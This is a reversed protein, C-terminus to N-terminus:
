ENVLGSLVQVKELNKQASIIDTVQVVYMKNDENANSVSMVRNVESGNTTPLQGGSAFKRTMKSKVTPIGGNFFQYLDDQTVTRKTDNIYTLLPLNAATSKRNTIFEGGEVEAQGGLVKVGGQSHRAGQIVGGDEYIPTSKIAAVNRMGLALAVASLALGVFWPQVALANSVAMYTNIVAQQVKSKKEQEQRKKELEKQKKELKEKEQEAKQQAAVDELYAAQQAALTDILFQRRSGRADALEDEISDMKDKHAEAAEEAKDYAEQQIELQHEIEALQNDILQISTENMTTLLSSIQGVWSDVLGKWQGMIETLLTDLMKTIDKGQSELEDKTDQLQQKAVKYDAYTIQGSKLKRDLNKIEDDIANTGEEVAKLADDMQKKTKGYDMIGFVNLDQGVNSMIDNVQNVYEQYLNANDSLSQSIMSKRDVLYQNNITTLDNQYKQEIQLLHQNHLENEKEVLDNYEEETASGDEKFQKLEALRDNYRNKEDILSTDKDLSVTEEDLKKKEELYDLEIKLREASYKKEAQILAGYKANFDFSGSSTNINQNYNIDVDAGKAELRDSEMQNNVETMARQYDEYMRLLEKYYAEKEKKVLADYKINISLVLENYLETLNHGEKAAEEAEKYADEIADQRENEIEQLHKKLSEEEASLRNDRIRRLIDTINWESEELEELKDEQHKKLMDSELRRYKKQISLIEQQVANEVDVKDANLKLMENGQRRAADIEDQEANYLAQLEREREDEIAETLNNRVRKQQENFGELRQLREEYLKKNYALEADASEKATETIQDYMSQVQELRKKLVQAWEEEPYLNEVNAIASAYMPDQLLEYFRKVEDTGKTLDLNNIQNQIDQIVQKQMEGFDSKADSKTFWNFIDANLWGKGRKGTEDNGSEVAAQLEFYVERFKKLRETADDINEIESAKGFWTYDDTKTGEELSKGGRARSFEQLAKAAKLTEIQLKEYKLALEDVDDIIGTNKLSSLKSNYRDLAKNVLDVETEVKNLSNVLKDNGVIWTYTKGIVDTIWGILEIIVSIIALWIAAKSLMKLSNTFVDIAKAAKPANSSILGFSELLDNFFALFKTKKSTNHNEDLLGNFSFSFEEVLARLEDIRKKTNDDNTTRELMELAEDLGEVGGFKITGGIDQISKYLQVYEKRIQRSSSIAIMEQEVLEQSFESVANKLPSKSVIDTFNSFEKGLLVFGNKAAKLGESLMYIKEITKGFATGQKIQEQITQLASAIGQLATMTQIGKMANESDFGFLQSIGQTGQALATFGQTMSVMKMIGKSSETMSDIEYDTERIAQKLRSAEKALERFEATNRKGTSALLYLKDEMEGIASTTNEWTHQQGQLTTQFQTKLQNDARVINGRLRKFEDSVLKLGDYYKKLSEYTKSDRTLDMKESITSLEENLEKVSFKGLLDKASVKTGSMISSELKRWNKELETTEKNTDSMAKKSEKGFNKMKSASSDLGKNMKKVQDTLESAGM